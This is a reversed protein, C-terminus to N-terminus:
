TESSYGLVNFTKKIFNLVEPHMGGREASISILKKNEKKPKKITYGITQLLKIADEVDNYGYKENVYYLDNKEAYDINLKHGYENPYKEELTYVLERVLKLAKDTKCVFLETSSNTIVDVFSHVSIIIKDDM